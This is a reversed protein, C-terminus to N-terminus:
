YCGLCGYTCCFPPASIRIRLSNVGSKRIVHDCDCSGYLVRVMANSHVYRRVMVESGVVIWMELRMGSVVM